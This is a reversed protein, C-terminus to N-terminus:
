KDREAVSADILALSIWDTVNRRDRDILTRISSPIRIPILKDRQGGGAKAM